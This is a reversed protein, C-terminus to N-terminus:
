HGAQDPAGSLNRLERRTRKPGQFLTPKLLDLAAAALVMGGPRAVVMGADV